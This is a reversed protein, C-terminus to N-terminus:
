NQSCTVVKLYSTGDDGESVWGDKGLDSAPDKHGDKGANLKTVSVNVWDLGGESTPQAPGTVQTGDYLPVVLTGGPTKRLKLGPPSVGDTNQVQWTCRGPSVAPSSSAASAPGALAVASALLPVALAAAAAASTIRRL